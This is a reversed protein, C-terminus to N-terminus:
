NSPTYKRNTQIRSFRKWKEKGGETDCRILVYHPRFHPHKQYKKSLVEVLKHIPLYQDHRRIWMEELTGLCCTVVYLDADKWLSTIKKGTETHQIDRHHNSEQPDM